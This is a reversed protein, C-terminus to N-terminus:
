PRGTGLADVLDQHPGHVAHAVVGHAEAGVIQVHTFHGQPFEGADRGKREDAGVEFELLVGMGPDPWVDEDFAPPVCDGDDAEETRVRCHTDGSGTENAGVCAMFLSM